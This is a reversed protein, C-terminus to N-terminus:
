PSLRLPSPVLAGIQLSLFVPGFFLLFLVLPILLRQHREDHGRGLLSWISVAM